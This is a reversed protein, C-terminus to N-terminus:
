HPVAVSITTIINFALKCATPSPLKTIILLLNFFTHFYGPLHHNLSLCSIPLHFFTHILSRIFIHNSSNTSAHMSPHVIPHSSLHICPYIFFYVSLHFFPRISPRFVKLIQLGDSYNELIKKLQILLSPSIMGHNFTNTDPNSSYVFPHNSLPTSLHISSHFFAYIFLPIFSFIFAYLSPHTFPNIFVSTFSWIFPHNFTYSEYNFILM